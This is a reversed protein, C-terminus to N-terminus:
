QADHPREEGPEAAGAERDGEAAIRDLWDGLLTREGSTLSRVGDGMLSKLAVAHM